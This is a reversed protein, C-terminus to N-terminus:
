DSLQQRHDFRVQAVESQIGKLNIVMQALKHRLKVDIEDANEVSSTTL